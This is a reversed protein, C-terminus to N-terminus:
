LLSDFLRCGRIGVDPVGEISRFDIEVVETCWGWCDRALRGRQSHRGGVMARIRGCCRPSIAVRAGAACAIPAAEGSAAM